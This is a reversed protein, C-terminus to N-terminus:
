RGEDQPISTGWVIYEGSYDATGWVIYEGDPSQHRQGLRHLLQQELRRRQGLRHLETGDIALPNSLGLLNLVNSDPGTPTASSRRRSRSPEPAPHRHSRLHARHAIGHDRFSAGGSLGLLNTVNTLLSGVLGGQALRQSASFDVSGAGGGILGAEPLFQAGTQLAIKVQAPTLGPEGDLLLAVGGSVVAASM